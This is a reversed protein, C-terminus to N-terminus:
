GCSKGPAGPLGLPTPAPNASCLRTGVGGAGEGPALFDARVASPAPGPCSPHRAHRASCGVKVEAAEAAAVEERTEGAREGRRREAGPLLPRAQCSGPPPASKGLPRALSWPRRVAGGVPPQRGAEGLQIARLPLLPPLSPPLSTRPARGRPSARHQPQARPPRPDRLASFALPALARPCPLPNMPSGVSLEHPSGTGAGGTGQWAPRRQGLEPCGKSQVGQPVGRHDAPSTKQLLEPVIWGM